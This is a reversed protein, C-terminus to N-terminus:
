LEKRCSKGQAAGRSARCSYDNTVRMSDLNTMTLRKINTSDNTIPTDNTDGAAFASALLMSVM